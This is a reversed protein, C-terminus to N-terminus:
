SCDRVAYPTQWDGSYIARQELAKVLILKLCFAFASEIYNFLCLKLSATWSPMGKKNITVM